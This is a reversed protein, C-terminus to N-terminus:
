PAVFHQKFWQRWHLDGAELSEHYVRAFQMDGRQHAKWLTLCIEDDERASQGYAHEFKRMAVKRLHEPVNKHVYYEVLNVNETESDTGAISVLYSLALFLGGEYLEPMIYGNGYISAWVAFIDRDIPTGVDKMTEKIWLHFDAWGYTEREGGGRMLMDLRREVDRRARVLQISYNCRKQSAPDGGFEWLYTEPNAVADFTMQHYLPVHYGDKYNVMMLPRPYPLNYIEEKMFVFESTDFCSLPLGLQRGFRGLSSDLEAQSYGIAYGNWVGFEPAELVIDKCSVFHPAAILEGTPKYAWKHIPCRLVGGNQVGPASLLPAGAHKCVNNRVSIKGEEDRHVIHLLDHTLYTEGRALSTTSGFYDGFKQTNLGRYWNPRDGKM